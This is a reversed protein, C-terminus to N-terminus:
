EAELNAIAKVIRQHVTPRIPIGELVKKVSRPDCSAELAIRMLDHSTIEPIKKRTRKAM